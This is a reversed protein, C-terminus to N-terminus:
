EYVHMGRKLWIGWSTSYAHAADTEAGDGTVVPHGTNVWEFIGGYVNVVDTYEQQRLREAIRESRYGVSCYVAVSTQKDIGALRNVYFDDYGVWTAGKIHSVSFERYTRADLIRFSGSAIRDVSVEPMSHSLLASLLLNYAKDNVHIPMQLNRSWLFLFSIPVASGLGCSLAHSHLVPPSLCQDLAKRDDWLACTSEIDLRNASRTAIRDEQNPMLCYPPISLSFRVLCSLIM